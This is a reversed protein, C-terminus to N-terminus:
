PGPRQSPTRVGSEAFLERYRRIAGRRGTEAAPRQISQRPVSQVLGREAGDKGAMDMVLKGASRRQRGAGKM